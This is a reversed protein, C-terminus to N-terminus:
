QGSRRSAGYLGLLASGLLWIAPPLPVVQLSLAYDVGATTEQFWFTYTGPGLPGAFGTGGFIANGLDDLVNDGEGQGPATGILANGLLM